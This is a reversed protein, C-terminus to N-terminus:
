NTRELFETELSKQSQTLHSLVVGKEFLYQNLQTPSYGQELHIEINNDHHRAINVFATNKLVKLLKETNDSRVITLPTDNLIESVKGAVLLKGYKIIAVHDCVKEVEDIIHSALLITKGRKGIDILLNRVEVIGQPDLGNTPEDFILVDPDGVLAGAIALRQKMGLSYTSFLAKSRDALGVLEILGAIQSSDTKKIHAIIELNKQANLYPYFNPTELIAGIRNRNNASMPKGFWSYQGSTPQIIGLIMAITTTKGSGNPGLIGFINGQQVELNLQDVAKINKPYTKSLAQISLVSRNM